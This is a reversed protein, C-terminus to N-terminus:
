GQGKIVDVQELLLIQDRRVAWGSIMQSLEDKSLNRLNHVAVPHNYRNGAILNICAVMKDEGCDPRSRSDINAIIYPDDNELPADVFKFLQGIGIPDTNESLKGKAM